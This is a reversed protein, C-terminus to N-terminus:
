MKLASWFGYSTQPINMRVPHNQIGSITRKRAMKASFFKDSVKRIMGILRTSVIKKLNKAQISKM